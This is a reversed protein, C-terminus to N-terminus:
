VEYVLNVSHDEWWISNNMKGVKIKWIGIENFVKTRTDTHTHTEAHTHMGVSRCHTDLPGRSKKLRRNMKCDFSYGLFTCSFRALFYTPFSTHIKVHVVIYFYLFLSLFFSLFSILFPCLFNFYTTCCFAIWTFSIKLTVTNVITSDICPQAECCLGGWGGRM